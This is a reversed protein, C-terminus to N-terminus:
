LANAIAVRGVAGTRSAALFKNAGGGTAWKLATFQYGAPAPKTLLKWSLANRSTMVSGDDLSVCVIRRQETSAEIFRWQKLPVTVTRWVGVGTRSFAIRQAGDLACAVFMDLFDVWVPKCWTNAPLANLNQQWTLGGDNSYGIHPGVGVVIARDLPRSFCGGLWSVAPAGGRGTWNGPGNGEGPKKTALNNAHTGLVGIALARGHPAPINIVDVWQTNAVASVDWPLNEGTWVIGNPSTQAQFTSGAGFFTEAVMHLVGQEPSDCM